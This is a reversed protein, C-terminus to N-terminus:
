MGIEIYHHINMPEATKRTFLIHTSPQWTPQMSWLTICCTIIAIFLCTWEDPLRGFPLLTKRQLRVKSIYWLREVLIEVYKLRETSPKWAATHFIKSVCKLHIYLNLRWRAVPTRIHGSSFHRDNVYWALSKRGVSAMPGRIEISHLNWQRAGYAIAMHWGTQSQTVYRLHWPVSLADLCYMLIDRQSQFGRYFKALFDRKDEPLCPDTAGFISSHRLNNPLWHLFDAM